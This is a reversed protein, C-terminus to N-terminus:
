ARLSTLVADATRRGSYMAGQISATDRHDGCVFVQEGLSVSQKPAFPPTQTPQGHAITDVRLVRWGTVQAGYWGRLQATVREALDETRHEGPCAAAILAANAPAYAPSINSMVAVNLAPGSMTGDLAIARGDTPAKPAEFWVCSVPKSSVPPLGLLRSASPGDTAVVVATATLARGDTTTVRGPQVTGIPTSLHIRDDLVGAALQAPIQGMGLRPVSSSGEALSRFIADFMRRSDGLAPDLSIGAFLPRFFREIMPTSFGEARLASLTSIDAGRLLQNGRGALVRQRLRMLRLKDAISGIPARVTDFLTSPQRLPDGLRAFRDGLWVTAGPDFSCLDLASLDLHRPLEPYATLLVQFGRDLLYGDVSDTRVRGGIGDSAEVIVVDRGAKALQRGAVLGALGAGVIVVDLHRDPLPRQETV